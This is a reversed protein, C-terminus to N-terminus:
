SPDAPNRTLDSKDGKDQNQDGIDGQNHTYNDGLNSAEQHESKGGVKGKLMFNRIDQIGKIKKAKHKRQSKAGQAVKPPPKLTWVKRDLKDLTGTRNTNDETRSIKEAHTNSEIKIEKRTQTDEATHTVEEQRSKDEISGAKDGAETTNQTLERVRNCLDERHLGRMELEWVCRCDGGEGQTPDRHAGKRDRKVARTRTWGRKRAKRLTEKTRHALNRQRIVMPVINPRTTDTTPHPNSDEQNPNNEPRLEKSEKMRAM